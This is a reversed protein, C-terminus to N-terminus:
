QIPIKGKKTILLRHNDLSYGILRLAEINSANTLFKSLATVIEVVLDYFWGAEKKSEEPIVIVGEKNKYVDAEISTEFIALKQILTIPVFSM